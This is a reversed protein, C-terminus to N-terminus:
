TESDVAKPIVTQAEANAAALVIGIKRHLLEYFKIIRSAEDDTIATEGRYRQSIRARASPGASGWLEKAVGAHSVSDISLLELAIDQKKVM